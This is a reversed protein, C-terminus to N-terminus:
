KSIKRYAFSEDIKQLLHSMCTANEYHPTAGAMLCGPLPSLDAAADPDFFFAMSHRIRGSRNVVRHRTSAYLNNTWRALMDGINVVLANERLPVSQWLGSKDLIELGAVDQQVLLTLCGFDTHASAGLATQDPDTAPPYRLPSLTAMPASLWRDFYDERLDLSLAFACILQRSLGECAAYCAQMTDRWGPLDPWQNPGHLPTAAQVLPHDLPLDRGIKLGEKFDGQPQNQGDLVEEGMGYWGRHCPSNGVGISEKEAIPLDFFRAAAVFAQAITDAELRHGTLYFFGDYRCATSIQDAVKQRAARNGNHFPSFDIIPLASSM